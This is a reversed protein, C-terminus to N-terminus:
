LPSDTPSVYNGVNENGIGRMEAMLRAKAARSFLAATAAVWAPIM